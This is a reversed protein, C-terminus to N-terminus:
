CPAMATSDLRISCSEQASSEMGQNLYYVALNGFQERPGLALDTMGDGNLDAAAVSQCGELTDYIAPTGLTGDGQNLFVYVEDAIPNLAIVDPFGDDNLDALDLSTSFDAAIGLPPEYFGDGRNFYIQIPEDLGSDLLVLDLDGDHDMDGIAFPHTRSLPLAPQPFNLADAAMVLNDIAGSATILVQISRVRRGDYGNDETATATAQAGSQPALTDFRLPVSGPAGQVAVDNTYGAPVSYIRRNGSTDTLTVVSLSGDPCLDILDIALPHLPVAFAFELTGGQRDDNPFDYLGPTSQLAANDDQLILVCGTDVLLDPDLSFANPGEPDSDFIAPGLNSGSGTVTCLSRLTAGSMDQGNAFEEFDWVEPACSESGFSNGSLPSELRKSQVIGQQRLAALAFPEPALLFPIPVLFALRLPLRTMASLNQALHGYSALRSELEACLITPARLPVRM